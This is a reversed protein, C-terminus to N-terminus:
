NSTMDLYEKCSELDYLNEGINGELHKRTEHKVNLQITCKSYSKAYSTLNPSLNKKKQLHIDLQELMM